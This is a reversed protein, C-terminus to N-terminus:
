GKPTRHAEKMCRAAFRQERSVDEGQVLRVIADAAAVAMETIPEDVAMYDILGYLYLRHMGFGAVRLRDQSIGRAHLASMAGVTLRVSTCFVGDLAAGSDLLADFAQVAESTRQPDVRVVAASELGAAVLARQAGEMRERHVSIGQRDGLIAIRRCGAGIMWSVAEQACGANNQALLACPADPLREPARDFFVVPMRHFEEASRCSDPVYILGAAHQGHLTDIFRQSKAGDESSNFLVTSYGQEFLGTQVTRMMLAMSDDMIDPVIVGITPMAQTRMGRAIMDPEYRLEEMAQLVRKETEPSFRGNHHIVRSVTAISVGCRQSVERITPRKSEKMMGGGERSRQLQLAAASGPLGSLAM